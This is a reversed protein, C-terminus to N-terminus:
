GNKLAYKEGTKVIKNNKILVELLRSLEDERIGTFGKIEALTMPARLLTKIFNELITSTNKILNKNKQQLDQMGMNVAHLRAQVDNLFDTFDASKYIIEEPEIIEVSSPMYDFCFVMLTHTNKALIEIEAFTVFFESDKEKKPPAIKRKALILNEDADIKALHGDMTEKVYNKPMGVIELIARVYIYGDKVKDKIERENM